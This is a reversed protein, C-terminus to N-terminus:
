CTSCRISGRGGAGGSSTTPRAAAPRRPEAEPRRDAQGAGTPRTSRPWTRTSCRRRRGRTAAGSSRISTGTSCSTANARRRRLTWRAPRPVPGAAPVLLPQRAGPRPGAGAALRDPEAPRRGSRPRCCARRPVDAHRRGEAGLVAGRRDAVTNINRLLWELRFEFGARRWKELRAKMEDRADPWEACIKALALDGKSLKTGGSNVRNFIDVVVDVTKDEGTVEEIHLDIDKIGDVADAPQPVDTSSAAGARPRAMLRTIARRRRGRQM